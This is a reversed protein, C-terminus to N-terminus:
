KGSCSRVNFPGRQFKYTFNIYKCILMFVSVYCSFFLNKGNRNKLQPWVWFGGKM